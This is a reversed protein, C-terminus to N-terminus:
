REEGNLFSVLESERIRKRSTGRFSFSDLSGDNILQYVHCPTCDLLVAADQVTYSREVGPLDYATTAM